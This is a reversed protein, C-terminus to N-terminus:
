KNKDKDITWTISSRLQGTDILPKSNGTKNKGGRFPDELDPWNNKTFKEVVKGKLWESTQKLPKETDPKAKKFEKSAFKFFAESIKKKNEDFTSRLFSREPINKADSGFEHVSAVQWLKFDNDTSITGDSKKAKKGESGLDGKSQDNMHKKADGHDLIGVSSTMNTKMLDNLWKELKKDTKMEVTM